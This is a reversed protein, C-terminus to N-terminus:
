SVSSLGARTRGSGLVGAFPTVHRLERMRPRPDTLADIIDVTPWALIRRWDGLLTEAGAHAATMRRLNRRARALVEAPAARLREAIVAHLALSRRDERTMVPVFEVTLETGSAAALRMMTRVTPSKRGSEYAAITPQSTGALQALRTQTLGSRARLVRIPEM